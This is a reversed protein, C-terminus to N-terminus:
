LIQKTNYLLFYFTNSFNSHDTVGVPFQVLQPKNFIEQLKKFMTIFAASLFIRYYVM